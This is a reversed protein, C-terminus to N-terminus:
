KKSNLSQTKSTIPVLLLTVHAENESTNEKRSAVEMFDKNEKKEEPITFPLINSVLRAAIMYTGYTIFIYLGM